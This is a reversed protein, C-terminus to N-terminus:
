DSAYSVAGLYLGQQAIPELAAIDRELAAATEAWHCAMIYDEHMQYDAADPLGERELQALPIDYKYEFDQLKSKALFLRNRLYSTRLTAGLSIIAEREEDPLSLFTQERQLKVETEM